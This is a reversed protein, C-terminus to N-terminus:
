SSQLIYACDFIYCYDFRVDSSLCNIVTNYLACFMVPRMSCESM